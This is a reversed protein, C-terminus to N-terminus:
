DDDADAGAADGGDEVEVNISVPGGDESEARELHRDLNLGTNLEDQVGDVISTVLEAPAQSTYEYPNNGAGSAERKRRKVKGEEHLEALAERVTSPYLGTGTAIEESTSDPHQRLFLYIRARTETDLVWSLLDVIGEDFSEPAGDAVRERIAVEEGEDSIEADDSGDEASM